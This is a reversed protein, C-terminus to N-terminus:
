EDDFDWGSYNNMTCFCDNCMGSIFRERVGADYDKLVDQAYGGQHYAFLQSSSISVTQTEKCAPCPLSTVVYRENMVKMPNTLTFM